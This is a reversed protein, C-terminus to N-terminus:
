KKSDDFFEVGDVTVYGFRQNIHVEYFGNGLDRISDYKPRLVEKGSYNVIGWKGSIEGPEADIQVMSYNTKFGGVAYYIFPVIEKGNSDIVGARGNLKALMRNGLTDAWGFMSYNPNDFKNKFTFPYKIPILINNLTDVVGYLSDMSVLFGHPAFTCPKKHFLEVERLTQYIPPIDLYTKTSFVGYKGDKRIIFKDNTSASTLTDFEFPLIKKFNHDLITWKSNKEIFFLKDQIFFNDYVPALIEKGSSKSLGMRGNTFLTLTDNRYIQINDYKTPILEEGTKSICGMKDNKKVYMLEKFVAGEKVTNGLYILDYPLKKIWKGKIDILFYENQKQGIVYGDKIDTVYDYILPILVNYSEDTYGFSDRSIIKVMKYEPFYEVYTYKPQIIFEGTKNIYATLGNISVRAVNKSFFDVRDYRPEIVIKGKSDAFGFLSDKRFPILEFTQGYLINIFSFFCIILNLIRRFFNKM